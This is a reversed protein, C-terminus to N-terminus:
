PKTTTSAPLTTTTTQQPAVYDMGTAVDLGCKERVWRRAREAPLKTAYALDALEQVAKNDEPNLDAAEEFLKTIANWDDRVALPARKGVEEYAAVAQKVEAPTLMTSTLKPMQIELESCFANGSRDDGCAGLVIAASLSAVIAVVPLKM